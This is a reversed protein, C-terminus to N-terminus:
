VKDLRGTAPEMVFGAVRVDAPLLPHKKIMDVTRAIAQEVNDFGKLWNEIDVGCYRMFDLKDREVGREAMKVLLQGAGMGQVGCDHHGIVLIDEAGLEYVAVLLSRMVSGFAHTILAGANKIIICDGNKFNLAAPLLEVLRTDMCTLLAIKKQPQKVSIYRKYQRQEVFNKNYDLIKQIRNM